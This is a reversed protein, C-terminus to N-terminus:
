VLMIQESKIEDLLFDFDIRGFMIFFHIHFLSLIAAIYCAPFLCLIMVLFDCCCSLSLGKLKLRELRFLKVYLLADVPLPVIGFALENLSGEESEM